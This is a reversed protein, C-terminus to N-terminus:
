LIELAPSNILDPSLDNNSVGNSTRAEGAVKTEKIDKTLACLEDASRPLIETM